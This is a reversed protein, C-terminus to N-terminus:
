WGVGLTRDSGGQETAVFTERLTTRGLQITGWDFTV